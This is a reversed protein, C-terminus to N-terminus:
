RKKQQDYYNAHTVILIGAIGQGGPKITSVVVANLVIIM